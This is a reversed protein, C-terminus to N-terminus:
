TETERERERKKAERRAISVALSNDRKRAAVVHRERVTLSQM